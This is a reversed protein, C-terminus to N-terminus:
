VSRPRRHSLFRDLIPRVEGRYIVSIALAYAVVGVAIALILGGVTPHIPLLSICGAMLGTALLIKGLDRYPMIFDMRRVALYASVLAAIASGTASGIVAGVPGGIMLGIITLLVTAAIEVIDVIGAYRVRQELIFIQDTVHIHFFRIAGALASLGLIAATMERYIPAILLETALAGVLALGAVTPAMVGFLLAANTSLQALAETRKGENLLRAAIPFAATTVLMAGFSACRRGLGWGVAMLGFAAAGSMHEVIYRFNNEAIWGLAFLVLIPGGYAFAAKVISRSLTRPLISVGIMPAAVLSGIWQAIAYALLLMDSTPALFELFAIAIFFGLIPGITQLLTYAAINSQARARESYHTNSGRTSFFFAIIAISQWSFSGDILAATAIAGLASIPISLALITAETQLYSQREVAGREFPMFRLAYISFWSLAFLYVFEQTASILVYNGMESPNLWYTWAVMSLLQFAPSLLQAPLYRLTQRLLM